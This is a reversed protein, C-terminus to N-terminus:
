LPPQGAATGKHSAQPWFAKLDIRSSALFLLLLLGWACDRFFNSIDLFNFTSSLIQLATASLVLCIMRGYGGEPRVGAMVVILIAILVYSSGYDWKASSTRAAIVIGAVSALIGSLSYVMTLMRTRPVGAYQAARANTGMLLLRVGNPSFSMWGGIALAILAFLAFSWPIGLVNEYGLTELFGAGDVRVGSGNTLAVAMGTFFLQTGLTCLIPTLGVVAILVSNLLGGLLGVTLAVACFALAYANPATDPSVLEPALMGALVASLNALAIGSLDIGGNGSVMALMVGIALLGLEPIQSAMSQLNYPDLFDAGSLVAACVLVLINVGVLFNLQGDSFARKVL